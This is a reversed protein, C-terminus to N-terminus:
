IIWRRTCIGSKWNQRSTSAITTRHVCADKAELRKQSMMIVPAQLAAVCSLILNLLIYPYIDFRQSMPLVVNVAVWIALAGCFLIIFTWSGGFSALGDSVREGFSREDEFQETTNEALTEYTAMSDAVQRDLKSLEGKEAKLLEEVYLARYRAIEARSILADPRLEPRDVRIRQELSHHLTELAVLERRPTEKGSIACISNTVRKTSNSSKSEHRDVHPMYMKVSSDPNTAFARGPQSDEMKTYTRAPVTTKIQMLLM